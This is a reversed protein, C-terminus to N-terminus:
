CLITHTLSPSDSTPSGDGHGETVLVSCVESHHLHSRLQVRSLGFLRCQFGGFQSSLLVPLTRAMVFGLSFCDAVESMQSVFCCCCFSAFFVLVNEMHSKPPPIHLSSLFSFLFVALPCVNRRVVNPLRTAAFM